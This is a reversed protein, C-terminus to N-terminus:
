LPKMIVAGFLQHLFSYIMMETKHRDTKATYGACPLHVTEATNSPNDTSRHNIVGESVAFGILPHVIYAGSVDTHFGKLDETM